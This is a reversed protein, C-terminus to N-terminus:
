HCLSSAGEFNAASLNAGTFDVNVLGIEGAPTWGVYRFDAGTLNANRFSTGM